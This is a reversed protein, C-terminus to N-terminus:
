EYIARIAILFEEDNEFDSMKRIQYMYGDHLDSIDYGDVAMMKVNKRSQQELFSSGIVLGIRGYDKYFYEQLLPILKNFFVSKLDKISYINIFYAHGITYDKSHLREIRGNIAQLLKSLNIGIFTVALLDIQEKGGPMFDGKLGGWLENLKEESSYEEPFGLLSYLGEQKERFNDELWGMEKFEWWLNIVLAAPELLFPQPPMEEFYFRRRLATDLAEVGRDATNMTGIVYLNSPVGFPMKSYPLIVELEEKEGVRKDPELLTILEGFIEAVNGRNIEDIIMVHPEPQESVNKRPEILGKNKRLYNLIERVYTPNYVGEYNGTEYVKRINVISVPYWANEKKTSKPHIYLVTTERYVVDFTTEKATITLPRKEKAENISEKFEEFVKDFNGKRWSAKQSILKFFGDKIEYTIEDKEGEEYEVVDPKIGEIFDQYSTNQHFTVFAIKGQPSTWDKILLDRFKNTLAKRDFKNTEYFVPDIIQLARNITNYTKGTGPPGYLITNLFSMRSTKNINTIGTSLPDLEDNRLIDKARQKIEAWELLNNIIEYEDVDGVEYSLIINDDAFGAQLMAKRSADYSRTTGVTMRYNEYLYVVGKEIYFTQGPILNYNALQVRRNISEVVIYVSNTKVFRFLWQDIGNSFIYGPFKQANWAGGVTGFVISNNKEVYKYSGFLNGTNTLNLFEVIQDIFEIPTPDQIKLKKNEIVFGLNQLYDNTPPGGNLRFQSM